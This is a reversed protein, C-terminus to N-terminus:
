LAPLVETALRRNSEVLLSPDADLSGPVVIVRQLGLGALDRLRSAVVESPGAIAFRDIFEDELSLAQPAATEGHRARVYGSALRTIGRRTVESLGLTPAGEAAFRAFTATSGRVLDRAVTPDPHVGVNVFAGLLVGDGGARRATEIAWRLRDPEAGVTFDVQDAHRAAVEIV